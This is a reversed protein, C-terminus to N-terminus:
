EKKKAWICVALVVESVCGVFWESPMAVCIVYQAHVFFGAAFIGVLWTIQKWDDDTM